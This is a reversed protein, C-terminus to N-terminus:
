RGAEMVHTLTEEFTPIGHQRKYSNLQEFVSRRLCLWATDPYYADMMERWTRVPMKCTTEKEWPIHVVQLRGAEGAYFITGSFFFSVPVEGDQLGAFYKTAAVNFDFTCPVQLDIVMRKDFSPVSVTINTWLLARLTEGWRNPEGFLDSLRLQEESTYHRRSVDLQVQCKLMVSHITQETENSIGLKFLIHPAAAFQLPEAREITFNLDPITM